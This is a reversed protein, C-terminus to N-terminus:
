VGEHKQLADQVPELMEAVLELAFHIDEAAQPKEAESGNQLESWAARACMQVIARAQLCTKVIEAATMDGQPIFRSM